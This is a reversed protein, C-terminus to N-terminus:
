FLFTTSFPSSLHHFVPYYLLLSTIIVTCRVEIVERSQWILYDAATLLNFLFLSTSVTLIYAMQAYRLAM